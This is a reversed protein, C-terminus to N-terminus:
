LNGYDCGRVPGDAGLRFFEAAAWSLEGNLDPDHYSVSDGEIGTIVVFHGFGEIGKYLVAPDVLAILLFGKVLNGSVYELDVNEFEEGEFGFEVGGQVLEGCVNGLWSTQCADKLEFEEFEKGFYALVMRLCAVGCTTDKEQRFFPVKIKMVPTEYISVFESM